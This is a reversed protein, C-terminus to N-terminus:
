RGIVMYTWKNFNRLEVGSKRAKPQQCTPRTIYILRTRWPSACVTFSAQTDVDATQFIRVCKPFLVDDRRLNSVLNFQEVAGRYVGNVELKTVM